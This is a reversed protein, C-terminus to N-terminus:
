VHSTEAKDPRALPADAGGAGLVLALDGLETSRREKLEAEDNQDASWVRTTAYVASDIFFVQSVYMKCLAEIITQLAPMAFRLM